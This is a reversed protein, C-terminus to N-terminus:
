HKQRKEFRKLLMESAPDILVHQVIPSIHPTPRFIRGGLNDNVAVGNL